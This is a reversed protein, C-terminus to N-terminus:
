KQLVVFLVAAALTALGVVFLVLPLKSRRPPPEPRMPMKPFWPPLDDRSQMSKPLMVRGKLATEATTVIAAPLDTRARDVEGTPPLMGSLSPAGMTGPQSPRASIPATPQSAAPGPQSPRASIPAGPPLSPAPQADPLSPSPQADPLSPSPQSPRASVAAGPQASGPQSPRASVPAPAVELPPPPPPPAVAPQSSRPADVEPPRSRRGSSLQGPTRRKEAEAAEAAQIALRIIEDDIPAVQTPEGTEPKSPTIRRTSGEFRGPLSPVPPTSLEVRDREVEPPRSAVPPTTRTDRMSPRSPRSRPEDTSRDALSARLAAADFPRTGRAVVPPEHDSPARASRVEAVAGFGLLVEALQNAEALPLDRAAQVPGARLAAELEDADRDLLPAIMSALAGAEDSRPRRLWVECASPTASETM